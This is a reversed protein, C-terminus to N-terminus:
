VMEYSCQSGQYDAHHTIQEAAKQNCYQLVYSLKKNEPLWDAIHAKSRNRFALYDFPNGNFKKVDPKPLLQERIDSRLDCYNVNYRRFHSPCHEFTNPPPNVQPLAGFSNVKPFPQFHHDFGNGLSPPQFHADHANASIPLDFRPNSM